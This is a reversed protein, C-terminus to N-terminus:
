IKHKQINGGSLEHDRSYGPLDMQIHDEGRGPEALDCAHEVTFTVPDFVVGDRRRARGTGGFRGCNEDITVFWEVRGHFTFGGGPANRSHEVWTINGSGEPGDGIPRAQFGFTAFDHSEPTSKTTFEHPGNVVPGDVRGGGTLRFEAKEEPPPYEHFSPDTPEPSTPITDHCGVATAMAVLASAVLAFTRRNRM